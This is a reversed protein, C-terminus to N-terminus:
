QLAPPEIREIPVSPDEATISMAYTYIKGDKRYSITQGTCMGELIYTAIDIYYIQTYGSVGSMQESGSIMSDSYTISVTKMEGAESTVKSGIVASAHDDLLKEGDAFYHRSVRSYSYYGESGKAAFAWESDGTHWTDLETGNNFEYYEEGTAADRGIYMYQMVDGVFRYWIEQVVPSNQLDAGDGRESEDRIYERVTVHAAELGTHLSKARDVLDKGEYGAGSCGATIVLSVIIIYLPVLRKLYRVADGFFCLGCRVARCSYKNTM